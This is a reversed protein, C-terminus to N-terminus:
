FNCDNHLFEKESPPGVDTEHGPSWRATSYENDLKREETGYPPDPRYQYRRDWKKLVNLVQTLRYTKETVDQKKLSTVRTKRKVPNHRRLTRLIIANALVANGLRQAESEERNRILVSVV